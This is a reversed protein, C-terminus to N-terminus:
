WSNNIVSVNGKLERVEGEGELGGEKWSDWKYNNFNINIIRIILIDM